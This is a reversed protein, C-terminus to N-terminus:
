RLGRARLPRPSGELMPLLKALGEARALRTFLVGLLGVAEGDPGVRRVLTQAAEM